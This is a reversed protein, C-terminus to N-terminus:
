ILNTRFTLDRYQKPTYGTQARFVQIFHSQSSFALLDAIQTYSQDTFQLARKAAAIKQELVYHHISCGMQEQFLRSLYNPHLHVVNALDQVTIKDHMHSYIYNLCIIIPKATISVKRLQRMRAAYDLGMEAFLQEIEDSSKAADVKQIYFDSLRYSLESPLGAETCYRTLMAATVIFHYRMNYLRDASLKVAQTTQYFKRKTLRKQLREVEGQQVLKYYFFESESEGHEARTEQRMQETKLWDEQHKM